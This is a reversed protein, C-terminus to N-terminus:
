SVRREGVREMGVVGLGSSGTVATAGGVADGNLRSLRDNLPDLAARVSPGGSVGMQMGGNAQHRGNVPVHQNFPFQQGPAHSRNNRDFQNHNHNSHHGNPSVSLASSTPSIQQLGNQCPRDNWPSGYRRSRKDISQLQKNCSGTRRAASVAPQLYELFHMYDKEDLTDLLTETDYM